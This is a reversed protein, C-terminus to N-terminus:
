FRFGRYNGQSTEREADPAEAANDSFYEPVNRILKNMVSSSVHGLERPNAGTSIVVTRGYFTGEATEAAKIDGDLALSTVETM